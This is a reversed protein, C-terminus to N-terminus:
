NRNKLYWALAVVGGAVALPAAVTLAVPTIAFSAITASGGTITTITLGAGGTTAAIASATTATATGLTALARNYSM